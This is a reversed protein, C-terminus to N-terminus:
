APEGFLAPYRVPDLKLIAAYSRAEALARADRTARYANIRDLMKDALVDLDFGLIYRASMENLAEVYVEFFRALRELTERQDAAEHERSAMRYMTKGTSVYYAEDVTQSAVRRLVTPQAPRRRPQAHYIGATFLARDAYSRYANFRSRRAEVQQEEDVADSFYAARPRGEADPPFLERADLFTELMTALYDIVDAHCSRRGVYLVKIVFLDFLARLPTASLQAIDDYFASILEDVARAFRADAANRGDNRAIIAKLEGIQHELM